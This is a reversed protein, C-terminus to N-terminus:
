LKKLCDRANLKKRVILCSLAGLESISVRLLEILAGNCRAWSAVLRDTEKEPTNVIFAMTQNEKTRTDKDSVLEVEGM